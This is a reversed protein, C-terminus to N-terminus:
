KMREGAAGHLRDILRLLLAAGGAAVAPRAQGPRDEVLRHVAPPHRGMAIFAGKWGSVLPMLLIQDLQPTQPRFKDQFTDQFSECRLTEKIQKRPSHTAFIPERSSLVGGRHSALSFM